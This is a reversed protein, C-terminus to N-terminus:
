LADRKRGGCVSSAAQRIRWRPIGHILCRCDAPLATGIQDWIREVIDPHCNCRECPNFVADHAAFPPADRPTRTLHRLVPENQPIALHM